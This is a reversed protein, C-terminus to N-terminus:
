KDKRGTWEKVTDTEWVRICLWLLGVVSSIEPILKFFAAAITGFSTWDMWEKIPDDLFSFM